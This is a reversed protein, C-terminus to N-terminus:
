NIIHHMYKYTYYGKFESGTVKYNALYYDDSAKQLNFCYLIITFLQNLHHTTIYRESLLTGESTIIIWFFYYQALVSDTHTFYFVYLNEDFDVGCAVKLAPFVNSVLIVCLLYNIKLSYFARFPWRSFDFM